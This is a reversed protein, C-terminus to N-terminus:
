YSLWPPALTFVYSICKKLARYGSSTIYLEYVHIHKFVCRCLQQKVLVFLHTSFQQHLVNTHYGARHLTQKKSETLLVLWPLDDM